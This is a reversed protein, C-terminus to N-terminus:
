NPALEDLLEPHKQMLELLRLAAGSPKREGSEWKRLTVVPVNLAGAFIPRSIKRLERIALIEQPDLAPAKAMVRYTRLTLPKGDRYHAVMEETDRILDAPDFIVDDWDTTDSSIKPSNELSTRKM